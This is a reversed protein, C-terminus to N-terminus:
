RRNRRQSPAEVTGPIKEIQSFWPSGEKVMRHRLIYAGPKEPASTEVQITAYEGSRVDYPLPIRKDSAWDIHPDDSDGGFHVGLLYPASTTWTESGLNRVTVEYRIVENPRWTTPANSEYAAAYRLLIPTAENEPLYVVVNDLSWSPLYQRDNVDVAIAPAPITSVISCPEFSSGGPPKLSGSVNNAAVHELRERGTPKQLVLWWLYELDDYNLILGIDDCERQRIFQGSSMYLAMRDPQRIFYQSMRDQTLVSKDGVLPRSRNAFIAPAAAVSVTLVITTLITLPLKDIFKAIVPIWLLMIPLQFRTTASQWKLLACFLIFTIVLSCSFLRTRSDHKTWGFVIWCIAGIILLVHVANSASEEELRYAPVSYYERNGWTTRPDNVDVGTWRHWAFVIEDLTANLERSHTGLQVVVNKVISSLIYPPTHVTNQYSFAPTPGDWAPGLISQYLGLNRTAHPLNLAVAIVLALGYVTSIHRISINKQLLGALGLVGLVPSAFILASGKSLLALGLALGLLIGGTLRSRQEIGLALWALCLIWYGLVLDNKPGSAQLIAVPITLTLFAAIM